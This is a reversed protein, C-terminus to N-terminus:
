RLLHLTRYAMRVEEKFERYSPLGDLKELAVKTGIPAYLDSIDMDRRHRRVVGQRAIRIADSILAKPNAIQEPMRHIGLEEDTLNAGIEAKLLAKDALMWAEVMRVPVIPTLLKCVDEQCESLLIRAPNIKEEYARQTDESDADTHICLIDMGMEDMGQRAARKVYDSFSLGTKDISLFRVYPEVDNDCEFAVEVFTREVVSLLFREDTTGETTLGIFVQRAM